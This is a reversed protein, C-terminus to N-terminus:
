GLQIDRASTTPASGMVEDMTKGAVTVSLVENMMASAVAATSENLVEMAAELTEKDGTELAARLGAMAAEIQGALPPPVLDPRQVLARTTYRLVSEGEAKLDAVLHAEVDEEAHEISEFIMDEVQDDTLGYTPKVEISSEVGSTM